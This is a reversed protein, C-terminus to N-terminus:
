HVTVATGVVSVILVSCLSLQVLFDLRKELTLVSATLFQLLLVMTTAM